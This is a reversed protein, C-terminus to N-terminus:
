ASVNTPHGIGRCRISNQEERAGILATDNRRDGIEDGAALAVDHVGLLVGILDFAHEELPDLELEVAEREASVLDDRRECREHL